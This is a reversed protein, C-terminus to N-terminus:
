PKSWRGSRGKLPGPWAPASFLMSWWIRQISATPRLLCCRGPGYRPPLLFADDCTELLRSRATGSPDDIGLFSTHFRERFAKLKFFVRQQQGAHGPFPFVRSVVVLRPRETTM